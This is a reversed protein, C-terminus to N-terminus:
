EEMAKQAQLKREDAPHLPEPARQRRPRKYSGMILDKKLKQELTEKEEKEKLEEFFFEPVLPGAEHEPQQEVSHLKKSSVFQSQSMLLHENAKSPAAKVKEESSNQQDKNASSVSSGSSSRKTKKKKDKRKKDRKKEKTSMSQQLEKFGAREEFPKNNEEFAQIMKRKLQDKAKQIYGFGYQNLLSGVGGGKNYDGHQHHRGSRGGGMAPQEDKITEEWM